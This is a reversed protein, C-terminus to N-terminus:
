NALFRELAKEVRTGRSGKCLVVDGPRAITRLAEGAGASEV